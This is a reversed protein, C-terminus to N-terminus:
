QYLFSYTTLSLVTLFLLRGFILKDDEVNKLYNQDSSEYNTYDLFSSFDYIPIREVTLIGDVNNEKYIEAKSYNINILTSNKIRVEELLSRLFLIDKFETNTFQVESLNSDAFSLNNLKCNTFDVEFIDSRSLNVSNLTCNEFSCCEFESKKFSTSYFKCNKFKVYCLKSASFGSLKFICNEFKFNSITRESLDLKCIVDNFVFNNKLSGYPVRNFQSLKFKKKSM